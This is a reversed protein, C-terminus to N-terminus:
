RDNSPCIPNICVWGTIPSEPREVWVRDASCDPCRAEAETM